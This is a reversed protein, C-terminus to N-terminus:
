DQRPCNLVAEMTDGWESKQDGGGKEESGELFPSITDVEAESSNYLFSPCFLFPLPLLGKGDVCYLDDHTRGPNEM